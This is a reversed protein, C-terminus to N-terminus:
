VLPDPGQGPERLLRVVQGDEVLEGLLAVVVGGALLARLLGVAEDGGEVPQRLEQWM